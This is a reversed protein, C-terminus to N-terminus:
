DREGTNKGRWDASIYQSRLMIGAIQGSQLPKWVARGTGYLEGPEQVKSPSNLIRLDLKIFIKIEEEM